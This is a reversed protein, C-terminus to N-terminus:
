GIDLKKIIENCRLVIKRRMSPSVDNKAATRMESQSIDLADAQPRGQKSVATKLFKDLNAPQFLSDSLSQQSGCLPCVIQSKRASFTGKAGSHKLDFYRVLRAKIAPYRLFAILILLLLCSSVALVVFKKRSQFSKPTSLGIFIEGIKTGAYTIDSAFNLTKAHSAFGGERMAVKGESRAAGTMDPMLHGTGTFAVVENRHDVVSAYVVNAQNAADTLLSHISQSNRELLPLSVRSSYANAIEAGSKRLQERSHNVGLTIMSYAVLMALWWAALLFLLNRNSLRNSIRQISDM